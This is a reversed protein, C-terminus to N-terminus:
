VGTGGVSATSPALMATEQLQTPAEQFAKGFTTKLGIFLASIASKNILMRAVQTHSNAGPLM